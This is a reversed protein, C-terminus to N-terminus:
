NTELHRRVRARLDPDLAAAAAELKAHVYSMRLARVYQVGDHPLSGRVVIGVQRNNEDFVGAGSMGADARGRFFFEVEPAYALMGEEDARARLETQESDVQAQSLVRGASAMLTSQSGDEGFPYGLTLVRAGASVEAWTPPTTTTHQPDHLPAPEPAPAKTLVSQDWPAYRSADVVFVSVEHAPVIGPSYLEARPVFNNYLAFAPSWLSQYEGDAETLRLVNQGDRPEALLEPCNGDQDRPAGTSTCRSLVHGATTMLGTGAETARTWVSGSGGQIRVVRGVVAAVWDRCPDEAALVDAARLLGREPECASTAADSGFAAAAPASADCHALTLVLAVVAAGGGTM